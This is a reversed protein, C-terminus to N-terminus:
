KARPTEVTQARTVVPGPTFFAIGLVTIFLSVLSLIMGTKGEKTARSMTGLVAGIIAAALSVYLLTGGNFGISAGLLLLALAGFVISAKAM